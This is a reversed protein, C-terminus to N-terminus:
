APDIFHVGPKLNSDIAEPRGAALATLTDRLKAAQGADGDSQPADAPPAFIQAFVDEVASAVPEDEAQSADAWFVM